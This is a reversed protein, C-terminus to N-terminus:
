NKAFSLLMYRIYCVRGSYSRALSEFNNKIKLISTKLFLSWTVTTFDDLKTLWLIKM